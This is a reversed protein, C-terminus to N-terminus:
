GGPKRECTEWRWKADAHGPCMKKTEYITCEYRVMIPAPILHIPNLPNTPEPYVLEQEFYSRKGVKRTVEMCDDLPDKQIAAQNEGVGLAAHVAATVAAIEAKTLKLELTCDFLAEEEQM